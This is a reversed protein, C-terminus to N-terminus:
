NSTMKNAEKVIEAAMKRADNTQILKIGYDAALAAEEKDFPKSAVLFQDTANVDVVKVNLEFTQNPANEDQLDLVLLTNHENGQRGVLDFSHEVGSEGTLKGPVEVTWGEATLTKQILRMGDAFMKRNLLRRTEVQVPISEKWLAQFSAKIAKVYDSANTWMGVDEETTMSMSDDMSFTTYAEKEDILVFRMLTPLTIHRIEAFASYNSVAKIGNENIQTLVRTSVHSKQLDGMREDLGAFSSRFLGNQTMIICVENKARELMRAIWEVAQKRGQIIRFTPTKASSDIKSLNGFAEIVDRKSKELDLLKQKHDEVLLDLAEELPLPVFQVPRQFTVTVLDKQELSKLTRYTKMRNIGLRRAIAGAPSSGMRLLFLYAEVETSTLGFRALQATIREKASM